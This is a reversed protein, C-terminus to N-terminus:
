RGPESVVTLGYQWSYVHEALARLAGYILDDDRETQMLARIIGVLGPAEFEEACGHLYLALIAKGNEYGLRESPTMEPTDAPM